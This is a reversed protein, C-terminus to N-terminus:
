KTQKNQAAEFVLKAYKKKCEQYKGKVLNHEKLLDKYFVARQVKDAPVVLALKKYDEQLSKLRECTFEFQERIGENYKILRDCRENLFKLEEQLEKVSAM